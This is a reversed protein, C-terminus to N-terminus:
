QFEPNMRWAYISEFSWVHAEKELWLENLCSLITDPVHSMFAVFTSHSLILSYRQCTLAHDITLSFLRDLWSIFAIEGLSPLNQSSLVSQLTTKLIQIQYLPRHNSILKKNRTSQPVVHGLFILSYSRKCLKENSNAKPTSKGYLSLAKIDKELFSIVTFVSLSLSDRSLSCWVGRVRWSPWNIVLM